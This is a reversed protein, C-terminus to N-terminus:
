TGVRRKEVAAPRKGKVAADPPAPTEPGRDKPGYSYAYDYSYGYGYGYGASKADFKTVVTGIVPARALLLRRLRNKIISTRVQGAAIVYVTASTTTALLQADALEMVPPGDIIILDFVELGVSILSMLRTGSLLDAANPPLPGSAIFDLTEISTHQFVEPPTSKGTLYNSLGADNLLGLKKHLSPNRLDADVLLVKMGMLAFHRAIALATISKGESPSASTLFLSRPLGSETAFQLATCLSRYAEALPSRPDALEKEPSAEERIRPILGLTPLGTARESEEGSRITDDLRELLYASGLAVGLGLMLAMTLARSLNPSSPGGPVEAKDVIFVNNTGAGGAIDVEKFRQLLSEYLSRNTDVERKLINYQISRKQLDLVEARLTDIRSKMENEQNLSTEYAARLAAKITRVETALQRDIEKIKNTIQVMAPYSPQFTELKEQYETVLANRRSRLGDIVGNTLLQPLNIADSTDVQKWLQENKVRESILGGLAANAAALNTEAISSKETVVVIQESQAFSLLARESEELRIKLQKIQDELFAKAYTNAQFRKDLNSAIFAEAYAEAIRQSRQPSPDTYTVDVLRSGPVPRVARNGMVIGAAWKEMAAKNISNPDAPKSPFILGKIAGMFSFTRPKFFDADEGLRLASAVREALARSQLLEYQTRLFDADQGASETVDGKELPKSVTRDIQLRVSSTYLPTEMLTRVSGLVGFAVVVGLILWKRKIFIRLYERFDFASSESSQLPGGTYGVLSNYPDRKGPLSNAASVLRVGGATNDNPAERRMDSM